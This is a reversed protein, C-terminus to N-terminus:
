SAEVLSGTIQRVCPQCDIADRLEARARTHIQNQWHITELAACMFAHTYRPIDKPPIAHDRAFQEAARRLTDDLHDTIHM